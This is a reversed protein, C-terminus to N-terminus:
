QMAEDIVEVEPINVQATIITHGEGPFEITRYVVGDIVRVRTVIGTSQAPVTGWDDTTVVVTGAETSSRQFTM